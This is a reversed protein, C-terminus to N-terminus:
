PGADAPTAVSWHGDKRVLVDPILAHAEAKMGDAAVKRLGAVVGPQYPGVFIRSRGPIAVALAAGEQAEFEKWVSDVLVLAAAYGDPQANTSVAGLADAPHFTLPKLRADLNQLARARVEDRSMDLLMLDDTTLWPAKGDRECVFLTVLPGVFPEYLFTSAPGGDKPVLQSVMDDVMEQTGLTALLCEPTPGGPVVPPAEAVVQMVLASLAADCDPGDVACPKLLEDLPVTATKDGLEFVAGGEPTRTVSATPAAIRLRETLRSLLEASRDERQRTTRSALVVAVVVAVVLVAFVLARRM